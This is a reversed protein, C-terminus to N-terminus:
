HIIMAKGKLIYHMMKKKIVKLIRFEAQNVKQLKKKMFRLWLKKEM